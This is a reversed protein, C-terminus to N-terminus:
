REMCEYTYRSRQAHTWITNKEEVYEGSSERTNVQLPSLLQYSQYRVEENLIPTHIIFENIQYSQHLRSLEERVKEPTGTLMNAEKETVQFTESTQKEFASVQERSTVRLTRGDQFHITFIRHNKAIHDAEGQHLAALASIAVIFYGTPFTNRYQHAAEELAKEDNNLFHAFVFGIRLEAALKASESSGGLLYIKPREPPDPVVRLGFLPHTTELSEDSLKKLLSLRQDFDAGNDSKGDQLAKTSLPFGGPAKGIGLDVRGPALTSLVHFNELVKYPSYHRLMVGGSGVQISQTKALLYGILAEPSSGAVGEMHHHESVWFRSYGWKEADKALKVTHQLADAATKETFIPSQDLIGLKYGM